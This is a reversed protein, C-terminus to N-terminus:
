VTIPRNEAVCAHKNNPFIIDVCHYTMLNPRRCVYWYIQLKAAGFLISTNQNVCFRNSVSRWRAFSWIGNLGM